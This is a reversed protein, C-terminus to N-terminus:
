YGKNKSPFFDFSFIFVLLFFLSIGAMVIGMSDKTTRFIYYSVAGFFLSTFFLLVKLIIKHRRKPLVQPTEGIGEFVKNSAALIQQAKGLDNRNVFIRYITPLELGRDVYANVENDQLLAIILDMEYDNNCSLLLNLSNEKRSENAFM